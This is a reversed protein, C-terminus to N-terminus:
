REKAYKKAIKLYLKYQDPELFPTIPTDFNKINLHIVIKELFAYDCIPMRYDLVKVKNTFQQLNM